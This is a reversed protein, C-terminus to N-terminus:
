EAADAVFWDESVLGPVDVGAGGKVLVFCAGDVSLVVRDAAADRDVITGRAHDPCCVGFKIHIVSGVTLVAPRHGENQDAEAINLRAGPRLHPAHVLADFPM